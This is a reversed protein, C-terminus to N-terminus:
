RKYPRDQESKWTSAAVFMIRGEFSTSMAAVYYHNVLVPCAVGHLSVCAGSSSVEADFIITTNGVAIGIQFLQDM